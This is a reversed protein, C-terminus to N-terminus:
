RTIELNTLYRERKSPGNGIKNTLGTRLRNQSSVAAHNALLKPPPPPPVVGVAWGGRGGEGWGGFEECVAPACFLQGYRKNFDHDVFRASGIFRHHDRDM